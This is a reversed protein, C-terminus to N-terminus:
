NQMYCYWGWSVIVVFLSIITLLRIEFWSKLSFTTNRYTIIHPLISVTIHADVLGM